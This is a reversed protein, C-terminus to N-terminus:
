GVRKLEKDKTRCFEILQKSSMPRALAYGQLLHCGLEKLIKAHEMTEVGEAVIDINQSRSIAAISRSRPETRGCM